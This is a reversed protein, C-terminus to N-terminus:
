GPTHTSASPGVGRFIQAMPTRTVRPVTATCPQREVDVGVDGHNSRITGHPIASLATVDTAASPTSADIRSTASTRTPWAAATRRRARVLALVHGSRRGAASGVGRRRPGPGAAGAPQALRPDVGPRAEARGSAATAAPGPASPRPTGGARRVTRSRPSTVTHSSAPQGVDELAPGVPRGREHDVTLPAGPRAPEAEDVGSVGLGGVGVLGLPDGGRHLPEPQGVRHDRRPARRGGRRHPPRTRPSSRPWGARRGGRRDLHEDGVALAVRVRESSSRRPM